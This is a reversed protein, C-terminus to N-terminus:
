VEEEILQNYERMDRCLKESVSYAGNYDHENAPTWFIPTRHKHMALVSNDKFTSVTYNEGHTEHKALSRPGTGFGSFWPNLGSKKYDEATSM